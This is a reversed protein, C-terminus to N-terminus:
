DTPPPGNERGLPEEGRLRRALDALLREDQHNTLHTFLLRGSAWIPEHAPPATRTAGVWGDRLRAYCILEYRASEIAADLENLFDSGAIMDVAAPDPAIKEALLAGRHPTGLTFIRRVNLGGAPVSRDGSPGPRASSGVGGALARSILGGMSIGVLDVEGGADVGPLRRRIEADAYRLVSPIDGLDGYSIAIIEDKGAGTAKRLKSALDEAPFAPARYGSLIVVPRALAAPASEMRTIELRAAHATLPFDPNPEPVDICSATIAGGAAIGIALGVGKAWWRWRRPRRATGQSAEPKTDASTM